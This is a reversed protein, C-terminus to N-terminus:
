DQNFVSINICKGVQMSLYEFVWMSVYECYISTYKTYKYVWMCVQVSAYKCLQVSAHKCVQMSVAKKGAYFKRVYFPALIIGSFWTQIQILSVDFSLAM